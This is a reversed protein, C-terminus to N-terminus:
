GSRRLAVLHESRPRGGRWDPRAQSAVAVVVLEADPALRELQADAAVRQGAVEADGVLLVAVGEPRLLEAISELVARNQSDWRALSSPEAKARARPGQSLHRRAGIEKDRLQKPNIGLWAHRRAHHHLYDYTGGYPPSSLVLDCRYEGALTHPLTRADSLVFRPAHHPSPIAASLEAWANALEEGKRVFFETVLGKRVRKVSTRASTESRQRSFKIVIASFVMELALRDREDRVARIEELLGALEKLVHVEYWSREKAQLRARVDVRERVRRTSAAAVAGLRDLFRARAKPGRRDTKVRALRLALPDIDSGLSRWGGVLAEVAVTGSGCFPDLVESGPGLSLEELIVRAIAPHMRAPYAHFGHTLGLADRSEDQARMAEVLPFRFARDGRAEVPGGVSSLAQRKGAM